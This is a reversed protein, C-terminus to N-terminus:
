KKLRGDKAIILLEVFSTGERNSPSFTIEIGGLDLRTISELSAILRERSVNSGARQLGEVLVRASIYGELGSVTPVTNAGCQALAAHYARAVGTTKVRPDPVVQVVITGAGERGAEAVLPDGAFSSSVITGGYGQRRLEKILAGMAKATTIAVVASPKGELLQTVPARMDTSNRDIAVSAGITVNTRRAVDEFAGLNAKADQNYVFAYRGSPSVLGSTGLVRVIGELEATYSARVHFVPKRFKDHVGLGGSAIGVLPIGHEEVLPFAAQAGAAATYGFLAFANQEVILKRTNEVTRDRQGGDDLAVLRITNARVGGGRNVNDFHCQAGQLYQKAVDAGGGTLGLSQGIVIERAAAHTHSFLAMAFAFALSPLPRLNM